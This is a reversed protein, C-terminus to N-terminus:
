PNYDSRASNIEEISWLDHHAQVYSSPFWGYEGNCEGYWWGSVDKNFVQISDNAYFSLEPEKESIHDILARVIIPEMAEHTPLSLDISDDTVEHTPLNLDISDDVLIEEMDAPELLRTIQTYSAYAQHLCKEVKTSICQHIKAMFYNKYRNRHQEQNLITEQLAQQAETRASYALDETPTLGGEQSTVKRLLKTTNQFKERQKLEDRKLRQSLEFYM